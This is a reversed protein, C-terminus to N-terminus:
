KKYKSNESGSTRLKAIVFVNPNDWGERLTWKSFLFRRINWTDNENKFSLMKEKNSLIDDVEAQIDDDSTGRDEGFYGAHMGKIDKLSERLFELYEKERPLIKFEYESILRNLKEQLLKEFTQRLWGDNDRYSRINDIFFLSLSKIRPANNESLNDRLFNEQETLFHKDIADKIILEQYSNKFTSPIFEMDKEIVLGNSLTKAGEYIIDGDLNLTDGVGLVYEIGDSDRLVLQKATVSKVKLKNKAENESINPYYIQIGKVLGNNFSDVANLNYRPEGRYYDKKIIKNKGRGETIEPFTAGFRVIIQPNLTEISKYNSKDRPFRHPEDIIVVPRTATIAELPNTFGSLLSQDYNKKMSKSSLMGANVLLVQIQNSNLNSGEVFNMLHSPMNTRGSKAKFDGANIM